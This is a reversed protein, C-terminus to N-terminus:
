TIRLPYGHHPSEVIHSALSFDEKDITLNPNYFPDLQLAAGWKRKMFKIEKAQRAQKEPTDEQGRSLSEHHYLMAYPTYINRLGSERVKLCFDVDNFAVTLNEEDLGGVAEFVSKRVLLCAATVASLEQTLNARGFYGWSDRELFKHSHNAVGGIGLVVGAHQITNDSYLLKAGVAGVDSRLTHRVMESLWDDNIVEIDNNVLGIIEGQALTVAYNNIASYNFPKNYEIVKFRADKNLSALYNIAEKDQSQNDIVLVEFNTYNTKNKISEICKKLVQVQDRTPIILTVLPLKEPLPYIVRYMGPMDTDTVKAKSGSFHDQLAKYGALTAYNKTGHSHATSEAHARWHYLVRPIHRIKDATIKSVCRLALVYDQSEEYGLRFGGIEKVLSTRYVGLHSFMNHTYFLDPYWDSKFYPDFRNGGEDIKDEDSYILCVDPHRNIEVAVHYLAHSPILDDPTMFVTFEGTLIDLASNSIASITDNKPLFVAKIRPDNTGYEFMIKKIESNTSADYALCLQWYPYRQALISNLAERFFCVPPNYIPMVISLLPTLTLQDIHNDITQLNNLCITDNLKVFDEYSVTLEKSHRLSASWGYAKETDLIISSFSIGYLKKISLHRLKWLDATIRWARRLYSELWSIKHIILPSQSFWGSGEMPQWRIAQVCEPLYIVERISGKLNSPIFISDSDNFGHGLDFYLRAVRSGNHRVLAAELYFWGRSKTHSEFMLRFFPRSNMAQFSGTEIVVARVNVDALLSVPQYKRPLLTLIHEIRKVLPTLPSLMSQTKQILQKKQIPYVSM